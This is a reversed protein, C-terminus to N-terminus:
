ELDELDTSVGQFVQTVEFDSLQALKQIDEVSKGHTEPLVFLTFLFALILLASFPAFSWPGLYAQMYPFLLGVLFNCAWNVVSSLSM